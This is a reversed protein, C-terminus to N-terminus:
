SAKSFYSTINSLSTKRKALRKPKPTYTEGGTIDKYDAVLVEIYDKIVSIEYQFSQSKNMNRELTNEVSHPANVADRVAGTPADTRGDTFSDILSQSEAVIDADSSEKWAVQQHLEDLFKTIIQKQLYYNQDRDKIPFANKISEAISLKKMVKKRKNSVSKITLRVLAHCDLFIVWKPPMAMKALALYSCRKGKCLYYEKISM